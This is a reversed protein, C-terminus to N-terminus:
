RLALPWRDELVLACVLSATADSMLLVILLVASWM